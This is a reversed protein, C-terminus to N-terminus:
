LAIEEQYPVIIEEGEILYSNYISNLKILYKVANQTTEKNTGLVPVNADIIHQHALDWLTDGKEVMISKYRINGDQTTTSITREPTIQDNQGGQAYTLLSASVIIGIAVMCSGAIALKKKDKQVKQIRQERLIERNRMDVDGKM